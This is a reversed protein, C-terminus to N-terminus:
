HIYYRFCYKIGCNLFVSKANEFTEIHVYFRIKYVNKELLESIIKRYTTRYDWMASMDSEVPLNVIIENKYPLSRKNSKITASIQFNELLEILNNEMRAEQQDFLPHMNNNYFAETRKLFLPSIERGSRCKETLVKKTFVNNEAPKKKFADVFEKMLKDSVEKSKDEYIKAM